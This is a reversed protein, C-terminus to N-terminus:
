IQHHMGKTIELEAPAAELIKPQPKSLVTSIELGVNWGIFIIMMM